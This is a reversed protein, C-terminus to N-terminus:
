EGSCNNFMNLSNGHVPNLHYLCTVGVPIEQSGEASLYVFGRSLFFGNQKNFTPTFYVPSSQKELLLTTRRTLVM